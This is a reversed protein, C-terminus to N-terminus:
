RDEVAMAARVLRRIEVLDFPKALVPRGSQRVFEAAKPTFAGGTMFTVRSRLDPRADRLAEFFQMGNMEPMMLDCLILDPDEGDSLHALASGGSEFVSVDHKRLVRHLSRGLMPEDDIIVVRARRPTPGDTPKPPISSRTLGAPPLSVHFHTGHEASSEVELTGGIREVLNKSIALGLGSPENSEPPTFHPDFLSPMREVEIPPGDHGISIRARGDGTTSTAVFLRHAEAEDGLSGIAHLLLKLVVQAVVGQPARVDPVPGLTQELRVRHRLENWCLRVAATVAEQPAVEDTAGNVGSSFAHLDRVIRAMREAGDLADALQQQLQATREVDLRSLDEQTLRLNSLVFALPNNLEHAMGAALTGVSALRDTLLLHERMRRRSEEARIFREAIALRTELLRPSVPKAVFDSAGADLVEALDDAGSRGTVMLIFVAQGDPRARVTRTLEVGSQGPLTWDAILFDFPAEDFRELAEEASSVAEVQHGRETLLHELLQRMSRSDEVVLTRTAEAM